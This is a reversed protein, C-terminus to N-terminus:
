YRCARNMAERANIVAQYLRQGRTGPTLCLYKNVRNAECYADRAAVADQYNRTARACPDYASAPSVNVVSFAIFAAAIVTHRVM